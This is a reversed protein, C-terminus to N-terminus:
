DTTLHVIDSLPALGTPRAQKPTQSYIFAAVIILIIAIAIGRTWSM